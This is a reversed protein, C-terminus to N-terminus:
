YGDPIVWADTAAGSGWSQAEKTNADFQDPAVQVCLRSSSGQGCTTLKIRGGKADLAAVAAKEQAIQASLDAAQAKLSATQQEQWWLSAYSGGAVLLVALALVLVARVNLGRGASKAEAIANALAATTQTLTTELPPLRGAVARLDTSADNIRREIKREISQGAREGAVEVSTAIADPDVAKLAKALEALQAPTSAKADIQKFIFANQKLVQAIEQRMATVNNLLEVVPDASESM